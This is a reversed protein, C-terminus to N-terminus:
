RVIAGCAVVQDEDEVRVQLVHDDSLLDSFRVDEDEEEEEGDARLDDEIEEIERGPEECSGSLLVVEYELGEDGGEAAELTILFRTEDDDEDDDDDDGPRILVTGSIGSEGVPELSVSVEEPVTQQADAASTTLPGIILALIAILLFQPM